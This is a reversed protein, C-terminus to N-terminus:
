TTAGPGTGPRPLAALSRALEAYTPEWSTEVVLRAFLWATLREPDLGCLEAMRRVLAEPDTHLRDGANLLHQLVDYTPDGVYPKPDVVLWPEREAALVNDAHLDTVLLTRREASGPLARYLALGDRIVAPDLVPQEAVAYSAEAEDAWADCMSQLERFPGGPAPELQLRLLLAAIVADQEEDPAATLPTGPRCRELLLASTRDDLHEARHLLVTGNGAWTMLGDAEHLAEFHRWAVKLVLERGDRDRVPAVWATSGGPQYPPGLELAWRAAIGAVADPLDGVWAAREPPGFRQVSEALYRPLELAPVAGM